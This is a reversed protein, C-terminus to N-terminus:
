AAADEAEEAVEVVQVNVGAGRLMKLAEPPATSDTILLDIRELPCLILSGRPAFKSGDVLVILHEAQHLLKQEAKILIPDGEILGQPRIAMAGMFMRATYFHDLMTDHEYPSVVLSQERHLEGGPLLVRCNGQGSLFAALAFSNTLVQLGLRAIHEGMCYTTTGGNVIISDGPACLTAAHAAIARKARVRSQLTREFMPTALRSGSAMSLPEAGGRVRHLRGARALAAIDRRITAPSAALKGALEDVTVLPTRDLSEEILRRRQQQHM